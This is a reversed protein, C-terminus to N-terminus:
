KTYAMASTEIPFAYHAGKYADRALNELEEIKAARPNTPVVTGSRHAYWAGFAFVVVAAIVASWAVWPDSKVSPLVKGFWLRFRDVVGTLAKRFASPRPTPPPFTPGQASQPEELLVTDLQNSRDM